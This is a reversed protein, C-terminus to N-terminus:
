TISSLHYISLYFYLHYRSSKSVLLSKKFSVWSTAVIFSPLKGVYIHFCKSILIWWLSLSSICFFLWWLDAILSMFSIGLFQPNPV